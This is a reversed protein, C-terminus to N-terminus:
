APEAVLRIVGGADVLALRGPAVEVRAVSELAAVLADEQDMIGPPDDCAMLTTRVQGVSLEDGDLEWSGGVTNCGTELAVDGGETFTISPTTGALASEVADGSAVGVVQWTGVLLEDADYSRFALRVGGPGTLVMRDRDDRGEEDVDVEVADVAGLAALFEDEAALRPEPCAMRTAALDDIEVSDDDGLDFSGHYTNCPATGSVVDGDIALTVPTDDDVTLSSDERDLLWEHAELDTRTSPLGATAARSDVEDRWGCAPGAAVLVAVGAALLVRRASPAAM